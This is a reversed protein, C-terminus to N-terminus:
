RIRGPGGQPQQFPSNSRVPKDNPPRRGPFTTFIREGEKLGSLVESQTGVTAGVRIPQFKPKRNSGLVYVGTGQEESVIASTPILLANPHRGVQFGATFNMGSLLKARDPDVLQIRVQFSTVNQVVVSEPAILRVKGHFTRGPFADVQLDVAQGRYISGIDSESVNAIGELDGALAFISSSTASSTASASTTPTVFAGVDAYKQSIVGEFPARIFTDDIETRITQLAGKAQTVQARAAAIDEQRFGAQVLDLQAKLAHIRQQISLYQSRSADFTVRGIAGAEFLQQNSRYASQIAIMQAEADRLNERAQRIEEPRSGAEMKQLNAGAAALSGEARLLEGRLNSDDMRALLQGAKVRDGQDVYIASIRGPQKPSINVPTLPRISGSATVKVELNQRIVEATQSELETERQQTGNAQWLWFSGAGLAIVGLVVPAWPQFGPRSLHRN